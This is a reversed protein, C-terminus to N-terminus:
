VTIWDRIVVSDIETRQKARDALYNEEWQGITAFAICNATLQRCVRTVGVLSAQSPSLLEQKLNQYLELGLLGNFNDAPAVVAARIGTQIVWTCELGVNKFLFTIGVTFAM